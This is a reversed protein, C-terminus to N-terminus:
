DVWRQARAIAVAQQRSRCGLKRFLNNLHYKVTAEAIQMEHAIIKNSAGASAARLVRLEQRTLPSDAPRPAVNTLKELRALVDQVDDYRKLASAIASTQLLEDLFPKEVGLHSISWDMGVEGLVAQLLQAADRTERNKRLIFASWISASQRQRTSLGPNALIAAIQQGVGSRKPSHWAIHRLCLLAIDREIATDLESLADKAGEVWNFSIRSRISSLKKVADRWRGQSQLLEAELLTTDTVSRRDRWLVVKSQEIFKLAQSTGGPERVSLSAYRLALRSLQPWSEGFNFERFDAEVFSQMPKHDGRELACAALLLKCIRNESVCPFDLKNLTDRASIAQKQAEVLVGDELHLISHHVYIFFLLYHIGGSRYHHEARSLYVEAGPRDGSLMAKVLLSNYILGRSLHDNPDLEGVFNWLQDRALDSLQKNEYTFFLFSFLRMDVSYQEPRAIVNKFELAQAGYQNKLLFKVHTVAGLKLANAAQALYVTEPPDPLRELLLDVCRRAELVGVFFNIFIGGHSRLLAIAGDPNDMDLHRMMQESLTQNTGETTEVQLLSGDSWAQKLQDWQVQEPKTWGCARLIDNQREAPINRFLFHLLPEDSPDHSM